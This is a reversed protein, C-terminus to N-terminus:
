RKQQGEMQEDLIKKKKEIEKKIDAPCGTKIPWGFKRTDIWEKEKETFIMHM